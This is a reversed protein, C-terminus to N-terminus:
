WARRAAPRSGSTYIVYAPNRPIRCPSGRAPRPRSSRGAPRGPDGERQGTSGCCPCRSPRPCVPRRRVHLHAALPPRRSDDLMYAIRDAPVRISPCTRPRRGQARELLAAVADVGRPLALAVFRGGPRCGPRRLRALRDAEGDLEAGYLQLRDRGRVVAMATPTRRTRHRSCPRPLLGGAPGPEPGGPQAGGPLSASGKRPASSPSRARCSRGRDATAGRGPDRLLAGPGHARGHSRDFLDPPTVCDGRRIGANRRRAGDSREMLSLALDFKAVPVDVPEIRGALQGLPFEVYTDQHVSLMVQFLPHLGLSRSPNMM